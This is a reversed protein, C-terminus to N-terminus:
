REPSTAPNAPLPGRRDRGNGPTLAITCRVCGTPVSPNRMRFIFCRLLLVVTKRNETSTHDSVEERRHTPAPAGGFSSKSDAPPQPVARLTQANRRLPSARHVPLKLPLFWHVQLRPLEVPQGSVFVGRVLRHQLPVNDTLHRHDTASDRAREGGIAQGFCPDLHHQEILTGHRVAAGARAGREQEGFQVRVEAAENLDNTFLVGYAAVSRHPDQRPQKPAAEQLREVLREVGAREVEARREFGQAISRGKELV